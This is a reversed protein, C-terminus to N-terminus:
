VCTDNVRNRRDKPATPITPSFASSFSQQAREEATKRETKQLTVKLVCLVL